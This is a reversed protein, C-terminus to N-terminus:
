ISIKVLQHANSWLQQVTSYAQYIKNFVIFNKKSVKFFIFFLYRPFVVNCTFRTERVKGFFLCIICNFSNILYLLNLTLLENSNSYNMQILITWKFQFLGNWNSNDMEVSIWNSYGMEIPISWIFQFLGNSNSYDM